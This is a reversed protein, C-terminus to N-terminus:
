LKAAPGNPPGAYRALSPLDFNSSGPNIAQTRRSTVGGCAVADPESQAQISGASLWTAHIIPRPAQSVVCTARTAM